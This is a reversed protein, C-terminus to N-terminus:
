DETNEENFSHCLHNDETMSLHRLIKYRCRHCYFCQPVFEMPLVMEM